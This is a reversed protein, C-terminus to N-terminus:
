SRPESALFDSPTADFREKFARRFYSLSEFGVAYAIETVSGAGQRLLAAACEARVTRIYRTPTTGLEDRLSRYLQHYSLSAAEALAEPGFEPDVLHAEVLPRLRVDLQSPAAPVTPPPASEGLRFRERLRERQALLNSVCATLVGPDFPKVLYADAGAELGAIQDASEARATLLVVPIADTMPDSKLARGLGLGDLEPMMVDAVILDPLAERALVLGARGDGAELVQYQPTLVSRVYARVDPNDDVLLITTRDQVSEEEEVMAGRGDQSLHDPSSSELAYLESLEASPAASPAAATEDKGAVNLPLRVTFTTGQGPTSTVGIEGGHLEVLEKVLALGIGTGEYRRTNASDAQYFREFIHPLDTPGIGVGTDRVSITAFGGTDGVSVDIMGGGGTFKVANSLLNLLVKELQEPDARLTLSPLASRFVLAIGNREALPAFAQTGSRVFGVLDLPQRNVTVSGAQLKTLDLIQNILRLLRQTNRLMLDGQERAERSLVGHRGDLLSKLPGLILTLPTRFEHSLNAFLRSRMQNLQELKANQTALQQENRQLAATRTGVLATLEAGRQRLSRVRWQYALAALLAIALGLLVKATGTEQFLPAVSLAVRAAAPSWRDGGQSAVVKFTYHGPPVRTYFATRRSGADVWDPDYPELRYRFRVNGPEVFTLATYSIELDRQDPRIALLSTDAELVRGHSTVQEVTVSPPERGQTVRSPDVGVIGDQTPFWLRGDNTRAGAPQFGGNGERNRLGDRETYATSHIRPIRHDAFANLEDRRVWFIGRNSNMWLRGAGDELIEHVVPDYLGDSTAYGTIKPVYREDAAPWRRPDLRALGRGETGIWLWGDGDVYLSRIIDAPLGERTTITRCHGALCRVVGGGNTGVWVAGDPTEAFARAPAQGPWESVPTWRGDRREVVQTKTGALLRGDSTRYLAYVGPWDFYPSVVRPCHMGPVTCFHLGFPTGFLIGDRDQLISTVQPPYGEAPTFNQITRRDPSIRSTGERVSGVWLADMSDRAVVYANRAALGEPASYTTFVSRRLRHLGMGDTALWIGGERDLLLDTIRMTPPHPGPDLTYVRHGNLMLDRDIAHWASDNGLVQLPAALTFQHRRADVAVVHHDPDFRFVGNLGYGLVAGAAPLYVFRQIDGPHPGLTPIGALAGKPVDWVGRAGSIWLREQPDEFLTFVSDGEFAPAVIVREASSGVIRYVGDLETAVWLSGDRRRVISMVRRRIVDPAVPVFRDGEMRGLGRDTGIFVHGSPDEYIVSAGAVLGRSEDIHTFRGKAFRVLYLQETNMWLAGDRTEMVSMIRDSPLGPSNASNYVTFRVGDFRVLGDFTAAWLYGTRSQILANISNVPLGDAISWSERVWGSALSMPDRAQAQLTAAAIALLAGAGSVRRAHPASTPNM